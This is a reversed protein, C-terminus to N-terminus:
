QCLLRGQADLNGDFNQLRGVQMMDDCAKPVVRMVDLAKKLTDLRDGARETYKVIDKLMLQYKTIRQVPKILLDGLEVRHGLKKKTEAFFQAFSEQSVLFDSKPKNRCYKVYYTHLRREHTVFANGAAEYDNLCKEIEKLFVTKHFECIQGINSFIIKDKGRLDEPLEMSSLNAIYGDVISTLDRVYDRETEVLENLVYRSPMKATRTRNRAVYSRKLRALEEPTRETPTSWDGFSSSSAVSSPTAMGAYAKAPEGLLLNDPRNAGASNPSTAAVTSSQTDDRESVTTSTGANNLFHNEGVTIVTKDDTYKIKTRLASRSPENRSLIKSM